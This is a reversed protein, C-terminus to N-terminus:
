TLFHFTSKMSSAVEEDMGERNFSLVRDIEFCLYCLVTMQEGMKNGGLRQM